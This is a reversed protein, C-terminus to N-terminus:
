PARRHLLRQYVTTRQDSKPLKFHDRKGGSTAAEQDDEKCLSQLLHRDQNWGVGDFFEVGRHDRVKYLAKTKYCTGLYVHKLGQSQAWAISNTMMYKGLAREPPFSTEYFCYWYHLMEPSIAAFIYGLARGESRFELIDTLLERSLVYSLREETMSGGVFKLDAYRICFERFAPDSIDFDSKVHRLIEIRLDANKNNVRHNESSFHFRSLDVRVSRALYFVDEAVSVDGTFPLFGRSYIDTLESQDGKICYVGYAFTYTTYDAEYESFFFRMGSSSSPGFKERVFETIPAIIGGMGGSTMLTVADGPRLHQYLYALVEEGTTVKLVNCRNSEAIAKAIEDHSLENQPTISRLDPPNFVLVDSADNFMGPYWTRAHKSRFSFTHPQFVAIIRAQPHRERVAALCAKAKSRSSSLDEYVAVSSGDVKSELRRRLGRFTPLATQLEDPEVAGTELLAAVAGLINEINHDGFLSTTLEVVDRGTRQGGRRVIFTSGAPTRRVKRVSWDAERQLKVSYSVVRCRADAVVEQINEADLCVVLLADVPLSKVLAKYPALYDEVTPYENFHDHTCSTLVVVNANYHLFKARPDWNASPYEDGELVFYRGGGLHSSAPFDLPIAGIFYSPDRDSQRLIWSVVATTTSKGHSGAVVINTTGSTLEHLVDPFSCVTLRGAEALDFAARVEDNAEPTLKAHKGIVVMETAPPINEPKHPTACPLGERKLFDSVPPYFGADSGSVTCGADKLLKAVASMGAGCIGIFHVNQFQLAM